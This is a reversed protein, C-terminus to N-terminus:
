LQFNCQGILKQIIEKIEKDSLYKQLHIKVTGNLIFPSSILGFVVTAFRLIRMMPNQAFVNEYRIMRLFDRQYKNIAIELFAKKIDAVIQIKELWFRVLIEFVHHLLCPGPDLM